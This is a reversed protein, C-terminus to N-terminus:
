LISMPFALMRGNLPLRETSTACVRTLDTVGNSASRTVLLNLDYIM